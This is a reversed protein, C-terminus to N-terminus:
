HSLHKIFEQANKYDNPKGIDIWYGHIPEHLLKKGSDLLLNMLDTIDFFKDKPIKEILEKKFIYIGANSPLNYSPKEKFATILNESTEFVAYPVDLQVNKSAIVMDNIRAFEKLLAGKYSGDPYLIGYVEFFSGVQILVITKPGHSAMFKKTNEFYEDLLTM